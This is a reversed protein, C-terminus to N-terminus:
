PGGPHETHRMRRLLLVAPMCAAAMFALLRFDDVYAMLSAQRSLQAGMIAQATQAAEVTGSQPALASQIADLRQQYEADHPTMHSVLVTQHVQAGRALFTTMMAIGIAAGINRVLNYIGAANAMQENRLTGMSITTLPVFIFGMSLGNVVNPWIVDRPAIELNLSGLAFASYALGGLGLVLLLRSDVRGVLRGVLFMAV